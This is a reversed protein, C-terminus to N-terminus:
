CTTTRLVALAAFVALVSEHPIALFRELVCFAAAPIATVAVALAAMSLAAWFWRFPRLFWLALGTPVLAVAGFVAIFL